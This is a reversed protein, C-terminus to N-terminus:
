REMILVHVQANNVPTTSSTLNIIGLLTNTNQQVVNVTFGTEPVIILYSNGYYITYETNLLTYAGNNVIYNYLDEPSMGTTDFSTGTQGNITLSQVAENGTVSIKQFIPLDPISINFENGKINNVSFSTAEVDNILRINNAERYKGKPLNLPNIDMDMGLNFNNNTEM